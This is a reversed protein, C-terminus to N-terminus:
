EEGGDSLNQKFDEEKELDGNIKTDVINISIGDEKLINGSLKFIEDSYKKRRAALIKNHVWYSISMLVIGVIGLLSGWILIDWELVMSMGFGFCVFGIIGMTLAIAKAPMKVKKDLSKLKEVDGTEKKEPSYAERIKLVERREEETPTSYTYSFKKDESM